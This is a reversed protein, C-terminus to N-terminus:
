RTPRAAGRAPHAKRARSRNRELEELARAAIGRPVVVEYGGPGGCDAARHGAATKLRPGGMGHGHKGGCYPCKVAIKWNVLRQTRPDFVPWLAVAYATRLEM